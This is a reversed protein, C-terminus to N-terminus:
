KQSQQVSAAFNIQAYQTDPLSGIIVDSPERDEFDLEGYILGDANRHGFTLTHHETGYSCSAAPLDIAGNGQVGHHKVFKFGCLMMIGASFAIVILLCGFVVLLTTSETPQDADKFTPTTDTHATVNILEFTINTDGMETTVHLTWNGQRIWPDENFHLTLNFEPAQGKLTCTVNIYTQEPHLQMMLCNTINSTYSKLGLTLGQPINTLTDVQAPFFSLKPLCRGLITLSRNLESGPAECKITPWPDHCHFELSIVLCGERHSSSGLINDSDDLMSINVPPNGNTFCCSINVTQGEDVINAHDAEKENVILQTIQPPYNVQLETHKLYILTSNKNLLEWVVDSYMRSVLLSMRMESNDADCMVDISENTCNLSDNVNWRCRCFSRLQGAKCVKVGIRFPKIAGEPLKNTFNALTNEPLTINEHHESMVTCKSKTCVVCTPLCFANLILVILLLLSDMNCKMHCHRSVLVSKILM